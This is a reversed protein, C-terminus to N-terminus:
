EVAALRFLSLVVESEAAGFRRIRDDNVELVHNILTTACNGVRLWLVKPPAGKVVCLDVMDTNKTVLTFEHVKAYRRIESDDATDLGLYIVHSSGPYRKALEPVLKRSLNQDLLLKL